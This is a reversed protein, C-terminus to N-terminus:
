KLVVLRPDLPQILAVASDCDYDPSDYDHAAAKIRATCETCANVSWAGSIESFIVIFKAKYPCRKGTRWDKECTDDKAARKIGRDIYDKQWDLHDENM